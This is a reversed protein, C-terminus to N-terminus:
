HHHFMCQEALRRHIQTLMPQQVVGSRVLCNILNKRCLETQIKSPNDKLQIIVRTEFLPQHDIILRDGEELGAETLLKMLKDFSTTDTTPPLVTYIVTCGGHTATAVFSDCLGM